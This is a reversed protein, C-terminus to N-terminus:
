SAGGLQALLGALRERAEDSVTAAEQPPAYRKLCVPGVGREVSTADKLPTNCFICKGYRLVYPRAEDLTMMEEPRIKGLVGPAYEFEIRVVQDAANLRRGGIEVLRRAQLATHHRNLKVVYIVGNHMYVGPKLTGRSSTDVPAAKLRDILRMAAYKGLRREDVERTVFSVREDATDGLEPLQRERALGTLFTMMKPTPPVYVDGNRRAM